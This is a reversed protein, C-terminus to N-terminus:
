LDIVEDDYTQMKARSDYIVIDGNKTRTYLLEPQENQVTQFM